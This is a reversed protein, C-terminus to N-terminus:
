SLIIIMKLLIKKQYLKINMNQGEIWLGILADECAAIIINGLKSKYSTKYYM